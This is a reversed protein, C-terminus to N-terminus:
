HSQHQKLPTVPLCHMKSESSEVFIWMQPTKRLCLMTIGMYHECPTARIVWSIVCWFEDSIKRGELTVNQGPMQYLIRTFKASCFGGLTASSPHVRRAGPPDSYFFDSRCVASGGPVACWQVKDVPRACIAGFDCFCNEADRFWSFWHSDILILSSWHSEACRQVLSTHHTFWTKALVLSPRRKSTKRKRPKRPKRRKRLPVQHQFKISSSCSCHSFMHFRAMQPIQSFSGVFQSVARREEGSSRGQGHLMMCCKLLTKTIDTKSAKKLGTCGTCGSSMNQTMNQTMIFANVLAQGNPSTLWVTKLADMSSMEAHCPRENTDIDKQGKKVFVAVNNVYRPGREQPLCRIRHLCSFTIGERCSIGNSGRISQNVIPHRWETARKQNCENSIPLIPNCARTM